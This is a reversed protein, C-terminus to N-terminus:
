REVKGTGNCNRCPRKEEGTGGCKSCTRKDIIKRAGDCQPCKQDDGFRDKITGRGMCTPCNIIKTVVKQGGCSSCPFTLPDVGTGNCRKCDYAEQSDSKSGDHHHMGNAYARFCFVIAAIASLIILTKKM